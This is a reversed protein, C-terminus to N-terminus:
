AIPRLWDEVPRQLVDPQELWGVLASVTPGPDRRSRPFSRSSTFLLGGIQRGSQEARLLLRRFDKVNETVIRRDHEAAWDLLQDDTCTRLEPSAAVAMVDFGRGSLVEALVPAHM